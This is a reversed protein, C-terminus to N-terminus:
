ERWINTKSVCESISPEKFYFAFGFIISLMIFFLLGVTMWIQRWNHRSVPLARTYDESGADSDDRETLLAESDVRCYAQKRFSSLKQFM